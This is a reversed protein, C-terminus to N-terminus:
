CFLLALSLNARLGANNPEVQLARECFRVADAPRDANMAAISAERAVDPHDPNVRHSRAFWELSRVPDELRQYVKGLLWMAAWNGPNITVVEEYLPISDTLRQRATEDLTAPQRDDLLILGYALSNARKYLEGERAPDAKPATRGVYMEEGTIK